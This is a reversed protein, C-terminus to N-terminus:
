DRGREMISISEFYDEHEKRSANRGRKEDARKKRQRGPLVEAKTM